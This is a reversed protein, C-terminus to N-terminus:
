RLQRYFINPYHIPESLFINRIGVCFGPRLSRQAVQERPASHAGNLANNRMLCLAAGHGEQIEFWYFWM